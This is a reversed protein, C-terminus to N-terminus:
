LYFDQNTHKLTYLGAFMCLSICNSFFLTPLLMFHEYNDNIPLLFKHNKKAIKQTEINKNGHKVTLERVKIYFLFSPHNINSPLLGYFLSIKM